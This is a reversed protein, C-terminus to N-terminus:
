THVNQAGLLTIFHYHSLLQQVYYYLITIYLLYMCRFRIMRVSM